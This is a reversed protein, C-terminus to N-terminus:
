TAPTTYRALYARMADRLELKGITLITTSIRLEKNIATTTGKLRKGAGEFFEPRIKILLTGVSDKLKDAIYVREIQSWPITLDRFGRVLLGNPSLVYMPGRNCLRWIPGCICLPALVTLGLWGAIRSRLEPADLRFWFYCALLLGIVFITLLASVSKEVRFEGSVQFKTQIGSRGM